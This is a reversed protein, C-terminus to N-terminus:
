SQWDEVMLDIVRSFERTNNTVLIMDRALATAAILGDYPGIPKGTRQLAARLKAAQMADASEFAVVPLQKLLTQLERVYSFQPKLEIGFLLEMEVVSSICLNAPSVQLLRILFAPSGRKAWVSIANSDLLYKM